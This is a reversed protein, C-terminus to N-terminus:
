RRAEQALWWLGAHIKHDILVGAAARAALWAAVEPLPIERVTINEGAVGGGAGVCVLGHARILTTIESTLGASSPGRALVSCSAPRWGTEEELERAAARTLDEDAQEDGVLGAPLEIVVAGVPIRQQEVLLLGGAPTVAVIGVVATANRRRAFEWRGEAVLELFRGSHLITLPM